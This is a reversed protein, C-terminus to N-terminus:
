GAPEPKLVAVALYAVSLRKEEGAPAVGPGHRRLIERTVPFLSHLSSLAERLLGENPGLPVVAVRTTLEVYLEWAAQREADDPVWSGSVEGVFPIRLTVQVEKRRVPRGRYREVTTGGTRAVSGATAAGTRFDARLVVLDAWAPV